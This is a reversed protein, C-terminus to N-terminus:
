MRKFWLDLCNMYAFMGYMSCVVAYSISACGFEYSGLIFYKRVMCPDQASSDEKEGHTKSANQSPLVRSPVHARFPWSSLVVHCRRNVM